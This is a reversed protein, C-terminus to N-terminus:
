NAAPPKSGEQRSFSIIWIKRLKNNLNSNIIFLFAEEKEKRIKFAPGHIAINVLLRQRLFQVSVALIWYYSKLFM